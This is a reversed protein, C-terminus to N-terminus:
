TSRRINMAVEVKEKVWKELGADEWIANDHKLIKIEEKLKENEEQLEQEQEKNMRSCCEENIEDWEEKLKENEEQLKENEELKLKACWKPPCFDGCFKCREKLKENEEKLEQNEQYFKDAEEEHKDRDCTMGALECELEENKEKLYKVEDMIEKWGAGCGSENDMGLIDRLPFLVSKFKYDSM